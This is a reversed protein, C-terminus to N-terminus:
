RTERCTGEKIISATYKDSAPREVIDVVATNCMDVTLM